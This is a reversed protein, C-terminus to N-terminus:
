SRIGRTPDSKIMRKNPLYSALFISLMFLISILLIPTFALTLSPIYDQIFVTFVFFLIVTGIFAGLLSPKMNDIILQKILVNTTAGLYMRVGMEYQKSYSNIGIMGFLGIIAIAITLLMLGLSTILGIKTLENNTSVMEDLSAINTLRWNPFKKKVQESLFRTSTNLNESTSLTVFFKNFTNDGYFYLSPSIPTDSWPAKTDNIVGSITVLRKNLRLIKGIIIDNNLSEKIANALSEEVVAFTTNQDNDNGFTGEILKYGFSSLYSPTSWIINNNSISEGQVTLLEQTNISTRIPLDSSFNIKSISLNDQIFAEFKKIFLRKEIFSPSYNAKPLLEFSWFGETKYGLPESLQTFQSNLPLTTGMLIFSTIAVQLLLLKRITKSSVTAPAGKGSQQLDTNIERERLHKTPLYAFWLTMLIVAITAFFVSYGDIALHSLSPLYSQGLVTMIEQVPYCLLISSVLTSFTIPIIEVTREIFLQLDNAGLSKKIAWEKFRSSNRSIFLSTLNTMTILLLCCCAFFVSWIITTWGNEYSSLLLQANPRLTIGNSKLLESDLLGIDYGIQNLAKELDLITENENLRVYAKYDSSFSIDNPSFTPIESIDFPLYYNLHKQSNSELGFPDSYYEPLIGIVNYLNGGIEVTSNLIDTNSDYRDQWTTYSFIIDNIKPAKNQRYVQGVFPGIGLIEFFNNSVRAGNWSYLDNSELSDLVTVAIKDKLEQDLTWAKMWSPTLAVMKGNSVEYSGSVISLNGPEKYPLPQLWIVSIISFVSIVACLSITLISIIGFNQLKQQSFKNLAQEFLYGKM